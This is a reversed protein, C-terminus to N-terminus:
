KMLVVKRVMSWRGDVVLRVFYVGSGVGSADWVVTHKGLDWNGIGLEQVERGLVDYVALKIEAAEPLSFELALRQNFPNPNPPYLMFGSSPIEETGEVSVGDSDLRVLWVDYDGAGYSETMGAIIYGCDATQRVSNGWDNSEGGIARRWQENGEADTKIACLDYTDFDAGFYGAVILGGDKTQRVCAGGDYEGSHFRQEWQMGGETDVKILWVDSGDVSGEDRMGAVIYGGDSIPLVSYGKDDFHGGYTQNWEMNGMNDTKILWVDDGGAGISGTWGAIIYGGDVTQKVEYGHDGGARGYTKNWQENGWEDTKILWVDYNGFLTMCRSGAIIFGGDTTQEVSYGYDHYIGGYTKEWKQVGFYDTKLLYVNYDGMSFSNTYGAIVFGGDDTEAVSKGKDWKSGGYTRIWELGGAENAKILWIDGTSDASYSNSSGVAAYGGDGTQLVGNGEDSLNGGYPM